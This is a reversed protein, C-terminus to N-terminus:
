SSVGRVVRSIHSSDVGYWDAIVTQPIGMEYLTRADDREEASLRRPTPVSGPDVMGKRIAAKVAESAGTRGAYELADAIESYSLGLSRLSAASLHRKNALSREMTRRVHEQRTVADLHAPNMCPPNSCIHDLEHGAPIPGKVAAYSLRHAWEIRKREPNYARGYGNPDRYRTWEWCGTAEIVVYNAPDRVDTM